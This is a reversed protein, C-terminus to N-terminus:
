WRMISRSPCTACRRIPLSATSKKRRPNVLVVRGGYGFQRLNTFIQSAMAGARLRWRHRGFLGAFRKGAISCVSESGAM